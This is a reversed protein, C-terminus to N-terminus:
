STPIELTHLQSHSVRALSYLLTRPPSCLIKEMKQGSQNRAAQCNYVVCLAQSSLDAAFVTLLHAAPWVGRSESVRVVTQLDIPRCDAHPTQISVVFLFGRDDADATHM